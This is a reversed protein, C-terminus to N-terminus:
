PRAAGEAFQAEATRRYHGEVAMLQAHTGRQVIRGEDLVIVFDARRLASLRHAVIFTTRGRMANDMATLIEHETQADVAATPDDLILIPPDLLVARAIALRQRQGGSLNAGGERLVTDYGQPLQTIFEHAAAIRAAREMQERSAEPHGFAINAAVTNSFLFSEQFVVGINRRLEDVALQRLDLGDMLVRGCSPDYFRPILSLLTSKGAGTAGLIAVCQGREVTFDIDELVVEGPRHEFWVHEFRVQRGATTPPLPQPRPPDQVEIPADLIEFVRRAGTLSVQITNNINAINQVQGSFQQLLGAFVVLGTGLPLQNYIVLYGGYLLLITINIQTLFGISPSFTSVMWFIRHQQTRIAQNAQQFSATTEPERAFGKIVQIGQIFEALKRIMEDVLERNRQYQPRVTRAFWSAGWWLIPTTALCALTLQLHLHAMYVLYVVLSLALIIFQIVVGDVFARVQQVDGTVRNIISGSAHADFFRFSLRQLKDYVQARLDVVIQMQVLKVINVTNVYTLLARLLALLLIGGAIVAAIHLPSWDAPPHLYGAMPWPPLQAGDVVQSRVYDIAVGTLSLGSLGLVLLVLQVALVKVCGWRYRWSFALLRRM